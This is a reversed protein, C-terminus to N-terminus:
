GGVIPIWQDTYIFVQNLDTIWMDGAEPSTPQATQDLSNRWFIGTTASFAPSGAVAIWEDVLRLFIQGMSPLMWFWFLQPNSPATDQIAITYYFDAM